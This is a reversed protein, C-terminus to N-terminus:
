KFLWKLHYHPWHLWTSWYFANSPPFIIFVQNPFINQRDIISYWKSRNPVVRHSQCTQHIWYKPVWWQSGHCWLFKPLGRSQNPSNTPSEPWYKLLWLNYHALSTFNVALFAFLRKKAGFKAWILLRSWNHKRCLAKTIRSMMWLETEPGERSVHSGFLYLWTCVDRNGLGPFQQLCRSTECPNEQGCRSTVM